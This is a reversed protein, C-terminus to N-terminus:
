GFLVYSETGIRVRGENPTGQDFSISPTACQLISPPLV